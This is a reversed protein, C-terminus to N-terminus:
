SLKARELNPSYSSDFGIEEIELINLYYVRVMLKKKMEWERNLIAREKLFVVIKKFSSQAHGLSIKIDTLLSDWLQNVM